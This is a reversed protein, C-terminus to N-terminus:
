TSTETRSSLRRETRKRVRRRPRGSAPHKRVKPRPSSVLRLREGALVEVVRGDELEIHEGLAPDGNTARAFASFIGMWASEDEVLTDSLNDVFRPMSVADRHRRARKALRHDGKGNALAISASSVSIGLQQFLSSLARYNRLSLDAAKASGSFVRRNIGEQQLLLGVASEILGDEVVSPEHGLADILANRIRKRARAFASRGDDPGINTHTRRNKVTSMTSKEIDSEERAARQPRM